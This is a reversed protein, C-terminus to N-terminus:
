AASLGRDLGLQVDSNVHITSIPLSCLIEKLTEGIRLRALVTSAQHDTGKRMIELVLGFARAKASPERLKRKLDNSRTADEAM